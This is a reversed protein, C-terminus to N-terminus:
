SAATRLPSQAALRRPSGGFPTSDITPGQGRQQRPPGSGIECAAGFPADEQEGKGRCASRRSEAGAEGNAQRMQAAGGDPTRRSSWM